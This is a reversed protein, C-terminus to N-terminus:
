PAQSVSYLLYTSKAIWEHRTYEIGDPTIKDVSTKYFLRGYKKNDSIANWDQGTTEMCLKIQRDTDKGVLSKHPVYTQAFQQKTLGETEVISALRTKM